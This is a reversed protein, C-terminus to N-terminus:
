LRSDLEYTSPGEIEVQSFLAHLPNLLCNQEEPVIASPVILAVSSQAKIWGTGIRMTSVAPPHQRWDKPLQEAGLLSILADPIEIRYLCLSRGQSPTWHVRIELLAL